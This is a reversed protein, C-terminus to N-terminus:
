SGLDLSHHYFTRYFLQLFPHVKISAHAENVVYVTDPNTLFPLRMDLRTTLRLYNNWHSYVFTELLSNRRSLVKNELLSYNRSSHVFNLFCFPKWLVVLEALWILSRNVGLSLSRSLLFILSCTFFILSYIAFMLSFKWKQTRKRKTQVSSLLYDSTCPLLKLIHCPCSFWPMNEFKTLKFEIFHIVM